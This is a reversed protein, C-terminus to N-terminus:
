SVQRRRDAGMRDLMWGPYEPPLASVEDLRALEEDSLTVDVAALNDDLQEKRRAGIIVSTVFPQQRTWALAIRAVSCGRAEAMPRMADVCDFARDKDVPPFDFSVRRSGDPGTGDRNFKGSLLGGALPSWPFIALKQDQALPVVERELDRGAISYYMQLSVYRALHERESIALGKMVQWAAFNCLGIYRVKGSRVIDNLAGLSEELPTVPDFGHVQYLDIYDLGLRELSHDVAHMLHKRSQGSLNPFSKRREADVRQSETADPGLRDSMRGHAKTAVVLEDRRLGIDRIAAGLIEESWGNSYIDATDFFNVGADFAGRVLANADDQTQKGIAGWFDGDGGFTMTGLCIESVVLGTSGVQRYRM